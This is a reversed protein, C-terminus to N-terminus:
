GADGIFHIDFRRYTQPTLFLYIPIGNIILRIEKGASFIQYSDLLTFEDIEQLCYNILDIIHCGNRLLSYSYWGVIQTLNGIQKEKIMQIMKKAGPEFRRIYNVLSLIQNKELLDIMKKADQYTTALPKELIVAKPIFNELLETFLSLQLSPPVCFSVIDPQTNKALEKISSFAVKHYKKEFKNRNESNIDVAASLEFNDHHEYAACHTLVHSHHNLEYDYLMGINGLGIVAATYKNM